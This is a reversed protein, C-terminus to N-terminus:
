SVRKWTGESLRFVVEEIRDGRRVQARLISAGAADTAPEVGLVDPPDAAVPATMRAAALGQATPDQSDYLAQVAAADGEGILIDELMLRSKLFDAWDVELADLTTGATDALLLVTSDAAIGRVVQAAASDGYRAAFSSILRAGTDAGLLRGLLWETAADRLWAADSGKALVEGGHAVDVLRGALLRAVQVQLAADFPSDVRSAGVYPSPVLLTWQDEPSWGVQLSDDPMVEARISPLGECGLVACGQGLWTASQDALSNAFPEDFAQYAVNLGPRELTRDAGWFTYDPPVHRWGDEYRWYFWTRAYPTGSIVEEVRVRARPEDVAVDLIRGTFAVDQEQKLAQVEDFLVTQADMWVSDASRQITLFTERDGLRLSAVEAAITDRLLTEVQWDVYRLRVTVVAVVGGVLLAAAVIVLLLRFQRKRRARRSGPDEGKSPVQEQEAEITWDLKTSM